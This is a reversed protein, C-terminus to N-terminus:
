YWSRKKKAGDRAAGRTLGLLGGLVAGPAGGLLGGIAAGAVSGGVIEGETTSEEPRRITPAEDEEAPAPTQTMDKELTKM